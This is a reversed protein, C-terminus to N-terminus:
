REGSQAAELKAALGTLDYAVLVHLATPTPRRIATWVGIDGDQQIQWHEGYDNMLRGLQPSTDSGTM